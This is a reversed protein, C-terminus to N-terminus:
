KRLRRGAIGLGLLGIGMLSMTMPEPTINSNFFDTVTDGNFQIDKKIFVTNTTSVVGSTFSGFLDSGSVGLGSSTLNLGALTVGNCIGNVFAVSCATEVITVNNGNIAAGGQFQLDIGIQGGQIEYYLITDGTSSTVGAISFDQSADSGTYNSDNNISFAINAYTGSTVMFNSYTLPGLTCSNGSAITLSGTNPMGNQVVPNDSLGGLGPCPGLSSASALVSAAALLGAMVLIKKM